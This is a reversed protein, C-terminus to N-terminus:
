KKIVNFQEEAFFEEKRFLRESYVTSKIEVEKSAIKRLRHIRIDFTFNFNFILTM